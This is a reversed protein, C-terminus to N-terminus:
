LSGGTAYWERQTCSCNNIVLCAVDVSDGVWGRLSHIPFLEIKIGDM